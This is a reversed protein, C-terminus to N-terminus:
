LSDCLGARAWVVVLTDWGSCVFVAVSDALLNQLGCVEINLWDLSDRALILM